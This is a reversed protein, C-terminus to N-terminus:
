LLQFIKADLSCYHIDTCECLKILNVFRANPDTGSGLLAKEVYCKKSDLHSNFTCNM